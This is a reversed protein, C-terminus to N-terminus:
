ESGVIAELTTLRLTYVGPVGFLETPPIQYQDQCPQALLEPTLRVASAGHAPVPGQITWAFRYSGSPGDIDLDMRVTALPQARENELFVTITFPGRARITQPEILLTIRSGHSTSEALLQATTEEGASLKAPDADSLLLRNAPFLAIRNFPYPMPLQEVLSLLGVVLLVAVMTGAVWRLTVFARYSRVGRHLSKEAAQIIRTSADPPLTLPHVSAALARRLDREFAPRRRLEEACRACRAVHAELLHRERYGLEYRLYDDILRGALECNM